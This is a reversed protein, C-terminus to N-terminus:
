EHNKVEDLKLKTLLINYLINYLSSDIKSQYIGKKFSWITMGLSAHIATSPIQRYLEKDLHIYSNQLITILDSIDLDRIYKYKPKLLNIFFLPLEGDSLIRKYHFYEEGSNLFSNVIKKSRDM